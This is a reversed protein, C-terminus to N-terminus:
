TSGGMAGIIREMRAVSEDPSGTIDVSTIPFGKEAALDALGEIWGQLSELRPLIEERDKDKLRGPLGRQRALIRERCTGADLRLFFVLDPRPVLDLFSSLFARDPPSAHGFSAFLSVCRQVFGEDFLVSVADGIGDRILQYQAGTLLFWTLLTEREHSSAGRFENSALVAAVAGAHAAIFANQCDYRLASRTFVLPAYKLALAPPLVRLLCRFLYGDVRKRMCSLLAQEMTLCPTNGTQLSEALLSRITSKGSGPLGMFEIHNM